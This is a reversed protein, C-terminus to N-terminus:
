LKNAQVLISFVLIWQLISEALANNFLCLVFFIFHLYLHFMLKKVIQIALTIDLYENSIEGKENEILHSNIQYGNQINVKTEKNEIVLLLILIGQYEIGHILRAKLLYSFNIDTYKRSKTRHFSVEFNSHMLLFKGFWRTTAKREWNFRCYLLIKKYIGRINAWSM